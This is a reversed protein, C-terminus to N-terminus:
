YFGVPVQHQWQDGRCTSSSSSSRKVSQEWMSSTTDAWSRARKHGTLRNYAEMEMLPNTSQQMQAAIADHYGVFGFGGPSSLHGTGFEDYYAPPVAAIRQRATGLLQAMQMYPSLLPSSDQFSAAARQLWLAALLESPSAPAAAVAGTHSHGHSHSHSRSHSSRPLPPSPRPLASSSSSNTAETTTFQDLQHGGDAANKAAMTAAYVNAKLPFNLLAKCGRMEFAAQDYACAADFATDYTGLWIRAGNQASDRIEAAFKGWPRRRVGRYNLSRPPKATTTTVPLVVEASRSSSETEGHIVSSEYAGFNKNSNNSWDKECDPERLVSQLFMSETESEKSSSSTVASQSTTESRTTSRWYSSPLTLNLLPRGTRNSIVPPRNELSLGAHFGGVDIFEQTSSRGTTSASWIFAEPGGDKGGRPSALPSPMRSPMPSMMPSVLSKFFAETTMDYNNLHEYNPLFHEEPLCNDDDELLYHRFEEIMGRRQLTRAPILGTTHSEAVGVAM